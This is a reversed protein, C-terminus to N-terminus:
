LPTTREGFLDLQDAVPSHLDDARCRARKRKRPTHEPPFDHMCRPCFTVAAGTRAEVAGDPRDRNYAEVLVAETPYSTTCEPCHRFPAAM